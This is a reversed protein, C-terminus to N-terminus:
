TSSNIIAPESAQEQCTSAHALSSLRHCPDLVGFSSAKTNSLSLSMNSKTTQIHNCSMLLSLSLSLSCVQRCIAMAFQRRRQRRPKRRSVAQENNPAPTCIASMENALLTTDFWRLYLQRNNLSSRRSKQKKQQRMEGKRSEFFLELEEREMEIERMKSEIEKEKELRENLQM